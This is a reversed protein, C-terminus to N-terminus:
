GDSHHNCMLDCYNIYRANKHPITERYMDLMELARNERGMASMSTILYSAVSDFYKPIDDESWRRPHFLM